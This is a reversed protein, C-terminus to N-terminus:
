ERRKRRMEKGKGPGFRADYWLQLAKRVVKAFAV